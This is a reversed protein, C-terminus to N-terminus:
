SLEQTSHIRHNPHQYPIRMLKDNKINEHNVQTLMNIHSIKMNLPADMSENTTISPIGVMMSYTSTSKDNFKKKFENRPHEKM